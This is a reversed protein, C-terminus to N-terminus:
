TTLGEMKGGSDNDNDSGGGGGGINYKRRDGTGKWNEM